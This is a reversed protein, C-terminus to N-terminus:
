KRKREKVISFFITLGHVMANQHTEGGWILAYRKMMHLLTEGWGWEVVFQVINPRASTPLMAGVNDKTHPCNGSFAHEMTSCHHLTFSMARYLLQSCIFSYSTLTWLPKLMQQTWFIHIKRSTHACRGNQFSTHASFIQQISLGKM